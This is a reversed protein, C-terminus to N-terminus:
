KTVRIEQFAFSVQGGVETALTTKIFYTVFESQDAKEFCGYPVYRDEEPLDSSIFPEILDEFGAYFYEFQLYTHISAPECSLQAVNFDVLCEDEGPKHGLNQSLCEALKELKVALNIQTENYHQLPDIQTPPDIETGLDVSGTPDLGPEPDVNNTTGAPQETCAVVGLSSTLVLMLGLLLRYAYTSIFRGITSSSASM